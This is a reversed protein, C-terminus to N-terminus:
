QRFLSRRRLSTRKRRQSAGASPSRGAKSGGSRPRRDRRWGPRGAASAPSAALGDALQRLVLPRHQHQDTELSQGIFLDGLHQPDGLARDLAPQHPGHPPEFRRLFGAIEPTEGASLFRHCRPVSCSSILRSWPSSAAPRPARAARGSAARAPAPPPRRGAPASTSRASSGGGEGTGGSEGAPHHGAHAPAQGSGSGEGPREAGWQTRAVAAAARTAPARSPIPTPRLQGAASFGPASPAM